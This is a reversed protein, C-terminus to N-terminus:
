DHARSGCRQLGALCNSGRNNVIAALPQRQTPSRSSAPLHKDELTSVPACGAASVESQHGLVNGLESSAVDIDDCNRM